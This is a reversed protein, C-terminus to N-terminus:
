ETRSGNKKQARDDLDTKKIENFFKELSLMLYDKDAETIPHGTKPLVVLESKETKQYIEATDALGATTDRDGIHFRLPCTIHKWDESEIEPNVGLYQLMDRTNNVVREWGSLHREKLQEAFHPVKEKIKGPHLYQCEQEAIKENWQLITGLTAVKKVRQPHNKALVLAVYGGMSYGFFNAAEIGHEDMYGLVNEAFYSIRFPSDTPGADGHGEFNIRHVVFHEKLQPVLFDFQELTGLAGHLLLLSPRNNQKM